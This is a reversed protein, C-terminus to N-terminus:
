KNEQSIVVGQSSIKINLSEHKDPSFLLEAFTGKASEIKESPSSTERRKHFSQSERSTNGKKDDFNFKKQIIQRSKQNIEPRFPHSEVEKELFLFQKKAIKEQKNRAWTKMMEEFDGFTRTKEHKLNIEPKFSFSEEFKQDKEEKKKREEALKNEKKSLIEDVRKYLPPHAKNQMLKRSKKSIEPKSRMEKLEEKAKEIQKEHVKAKTQKDFEEMRKVQDMAEKLLM